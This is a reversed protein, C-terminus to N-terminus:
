SQDGNMIGVFCWEFFYAGNVCYSGIRFHLTIKTFTDSEKSDNVSGVFCHEIKLQDLRTMMEIYQDKPAFQPNPLLKIAAALTNLNVM